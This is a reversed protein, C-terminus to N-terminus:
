KAITKQLIYLSKTLFKTCYNLPLYNDLVIRGLEDKM